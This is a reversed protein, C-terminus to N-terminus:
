DEEAASDAKKLYNKYVRESVLEWEPHDELVRARTPDNVEYIGGPEVEGMLPTFAKGVQPSDSAPTFRFFARLPEVDTPVEPEQEKSKTV